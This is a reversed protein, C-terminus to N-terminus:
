HNPTLPDHLDSKREIDRAAATTHGTDHRALIFVIEGTAIQTEPMNCPQFFPLERGHAHRKEGKSALMTSIGRAHHDTGSTGDIFSVTITDHIDVLVNTHATV